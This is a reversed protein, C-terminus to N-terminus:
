PRARTWEIAHEGTLSRARLRTVSGALPYEVIGNALTVATHGALGTWPGLVARPDAEDWVVLDAVFGEVKLTLADDAVTATLKPPALRLDKPESLFAWRANEPREDFTAVLATRTPDLTSLDADLAQRRELPQLNFEGEALERVTGDLTDVAKLRLTVTVPEPGDHVLWANASKEGVVLSVLTPAYVRAMEQGAPKLLRHYDEMAWSQVPWCDNIQWVLSGRCYPSRRFHEVGHRMADRQNLQSYYTWDELTKAEPYHLEVFGKFIEPPKGTKNHWWVDLSDPRWDTGADPAPRGQVSEVPVTSGRPSLSSRWVDMSPASAFGYESSFRTESEDYFKWDGRGHWVDWYHSDGFREDRTSVSPDEVEFGIPSTRIYDTGNGNEAVAQPLAGNYIREGYYRPPATERGGWPGRWMVENENNGCWLALSARDRLRRVHHAAEAKATAVQEDSDPYYACGYPFDQWVMIGAEDCADYFAESEYFGGGWVRLMNFGLKPYDRIREPQARTVFSDDPIWNAGRAYIKRGNVEFEFSRGHEDKERLLRITRLGIKKRVTHEGFDAACPVLTQPGEGAPWWLDPELEVSGDAGFIHDGVRFMLAGDGETEAEAWVRFRGSELKEQLFSVRKIRGAFELLEVAGCIGCSVLRPGWDWGSMYQAKRVFAREDFFKTDWAIGNAEFYARRREEGVRVASRFEIKLENETKLLDTVDIELPVFMDDSEGIEEGNLFITCVTDLGNFRLVRWPMDETPSWAFTTRYTWDAADVWQAGVEQQRYFPDGLAGARVLDLHVFGPVRAPMEGVLPPQARPYDSEPATPRFTWDEHLNRAHM